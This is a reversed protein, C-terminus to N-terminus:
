THRTTVTIATQGNTRSICCENMMTERERQRDTKNATSSYECFTIFLKTNHIKLIVVPILKNVTATDKEMVCYQM